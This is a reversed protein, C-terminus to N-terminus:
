ILVVFIYDLLTQSLSDLQKNTVTLRTGKKSVIALNVNESTTLKLTFISNLGQCVQGLGQGLRDRSLCLQFVAVQSCIHNSKDRCRPNICVTKKDYNELVSKKLAKKFREKHNVTRLESSVKNWLCSGKSRFSHSGARSKM